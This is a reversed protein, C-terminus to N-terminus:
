PNPMRRRACEEIEAWYEALHGRDPRPVALARGVESGPALDWRVLTALANVISERATNDSEVVLADVLARALRASQAATYSHEGWDSVGDTAEDAALARTASDASRLRAAYTEVDADNYM